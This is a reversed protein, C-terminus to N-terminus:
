VHARGIQVAYRARQAEVHVEDNWAAIAAKQIFEPTAVGIRPRVNKMAAIVRADGAILGSRYATMNSRKSLTNVVIAHSFDPDTCAQLLGAPPADFWLESYAEDSAVLFGYQHALDLARRYHAVPAVSGTPNHPSNLWLIALRRGIEPTIADLDPLWDSGLPLPFVEGHHLIVSDGYVQYALEPVAVLDRRGPTGPSDLVLSTLNYLAEKAGNAPLAHREPDVTVGFRRGLWSAIAQKLAPLGAATPYRSAPTISAVLADRIFQPTEDEPDGVGFNILRVGQAALEDQRARLQTFAYPRLDAIARNLGFPAPVPTTVHPIIGAAHREGCRGKNASADPGTRRDRVKRPAGRCRPGSVISSTM